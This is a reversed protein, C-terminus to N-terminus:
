RLSVGQELCAARLAAVVNRPDVLGDDPYWRAAIAGAYKTQESRIGIRSQRAARNELAAAEGDTRAVEIAGCSQYDISLGTADRLSEVFEPYMALSALAMETLPSSSDMEGGPALMGAGAWSAESGAKGADFITVPIKCRALRWACSLGIIGAGAVIM